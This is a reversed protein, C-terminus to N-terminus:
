GIARYLPCHDRNAIHRKNHGAPGRKGQNNRALYDEKCIFKNEDLIYLEEGTTLTKRCVLCTFCKLHFM